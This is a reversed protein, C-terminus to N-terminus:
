DLKCEAVMQQLKGVVQHIEQAVDLISQMAQAQEDAAEGVAESSMEFKESIEAITQVIRTAEKIQSAQKQVLAAVQKVYNLNEQSKEQIQILGAEADMIKSGGEEVLSYFSRVLDVTEALTGRVENVQNGIDEVSQQSNEALERIEQAVVTFGRGAVGARAAEINANLALVKTQRSIYTLLDLIKRIQESRTNLSDSLDKLKGAYQEIQILLNLTEKVTKQGTEAVQSSVLSIKETETASSAAKLTITTIEEMALVVNQTSASQVAAGSKIEAMSASVEESSASVTQASELLKNGIQNLVQSLKSISQLTQRTNDQVRNIGEGLLDIEVLFSNIVLRKSMDGKTSAIENLKNIFIKLPRSLRRALFLSIVTALMIAALALFILNRLLAMKEKQIQDASIDVGVIAVVEGASNKVPAYGSRRWVKEDTDYIPEPNIATRGKFATKMEPELIDYIKDIPNRGKSPDADIIYAPKKGLLRMTYIFTAGTQKRLLNLKNFTEKYYPTEEDGKNLSALQNGDVLVMAAQAISQLRRGMELDLERVGQLYCFFGVVVVCFIVVSLFIVNFYTFFTVKKPFLNKLRLNKM